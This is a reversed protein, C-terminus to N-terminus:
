STSAPLPPWIVYDIAKKTCLEALAADLIPCLFVLRIKKDRLASFEPTVLFQERYLELQGIAGANTTLKAEIIIVEGKEADYVIADAWRLTVSYMRAFQKNPVVGLRVRRWQLKGRYMEWLYNNVLDSEKWKKGEILIVM